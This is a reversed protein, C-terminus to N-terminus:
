TGDELSLVREVAEEGAAAGARLVDARRELKSIHLDSVRIASVEAIGVRGTDITRLMEGYPGARDLYRIALTASVQQGLPTAARVAARLIDGTSIHPVGYRGALRVAQTGKGSGPPGILVMNMRM